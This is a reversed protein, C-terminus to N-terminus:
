IVLGAGRCTRGLFAEIVKLDIAFGYGELVPKLFDLRLGRWDQLAHDVLTLQRAPANECPSPPREPDDPQL